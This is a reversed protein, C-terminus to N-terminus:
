KCFLHYTGGKPTIQKRGFSRFLYGLIVQGQVLFPVLFPIEQRRSVGCFIPSTLTLTKFPPSQEQTKTQKNIQKVRVCIQVFQASGWVGISLNRFVQFSLLAQSVHAQQTYSDFQLNISYGSPARNQLYVATFAAMRNGCVSPLEM